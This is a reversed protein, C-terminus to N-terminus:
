DIAGVERLLEVTGQLDALRSLDIDPVQLSALDPLRPDAPVGAVLPYEFTTESFYRQAAEGLLYEVFRGAADPQDSTVLRGVGAVNVLSGADGHPFFHNAVPYDDGFEALLRMLYYHNVFAVDVEGAAVGQVAVANSEYAVPSNALIGELWGRAVDEGELVRLATVFAQFSANSPVWGLRGSWIPDTFDLISEPMVLDPQTTDYAATRVRGSVGVWTGEADRFAPGVRELVSADLPALLGAGSVAGLAGADQAFFVDAPSRAGEELILAALEASDAYRVEVGIGTDETFSALVPAVLSESRGSYVTLSTAAETPSAEQAAGPGAGVPVLLAALILGPPLALRAPVRISRRM